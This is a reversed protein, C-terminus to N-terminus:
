GSPNPWFQLSQTLSTYSETFLVLFECCQQVKQALFQKKISIFQWFFRNRSFCNSYSSDSESKFATLFLLLKHIQSQLQSFCFAVIKFPNQSVKSKEIDVIITEDELVYVIYKLRLKGSRKLLWNWLNLKLVWLQLVFVVLCLLDRCKWGRPRCFFNM